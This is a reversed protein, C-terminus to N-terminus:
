CISMQEVSVRVDDPKQIQPVARKGIEYTAIDKFTVATMERSM